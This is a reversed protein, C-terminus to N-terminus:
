FFRYLLDRTGEADSVHTPSSISRSRRSRASLVESAVFVQPHIQMANRKKKTVPHADTVNATLPAAGLGLGAVRGCEGLGSDSNAPTLEAKKKGKAMRKPHLSFGPCSAGCGASACIRSPTADVRRVCEVGFCNAAPPNLMTEM